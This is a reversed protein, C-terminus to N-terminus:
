WSWWMSNGRARRMADRDLYRRCDLCQWTRGYAVNNVDDHDCNKQASAFAAAYTTLDRAAQPMEEIGRFDDLGDVLEGIQNAVAEELSPRPAVKRVQPTPPGGYLLRKVDDITLIDNAGTAYRTKDTAAYTVKPCYMASHGRQDCITCKM